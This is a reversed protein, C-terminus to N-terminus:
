EIVLSGGVYGTISVASSTLGRGFGVFIRTGKVVAVNIDTFDGTFSAGTPVNTQSSPTLL